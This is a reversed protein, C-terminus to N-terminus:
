QLVCKILFLLPEMCEEKLPSLHRGIIQEENIRVNQFTLRSLKPARLGLTDLAEASFGDSDKEILCM